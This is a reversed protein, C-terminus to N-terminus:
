YSHRQSEGQEGKGQARGREQLLEFTSPHRSGGSFREQSTYAFAGRRFIAEAVTAV